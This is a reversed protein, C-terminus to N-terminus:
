FEDRRGDSGLEEGQGEEEVKGTMVKEVLSGTKEM